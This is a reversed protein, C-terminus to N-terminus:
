QLTKLLAKISAEPLPARAVLWGRGWRTVVQNWGPPLSAELGTPSLPAGPGPDQAGASEPRTRTRGTERGMLMGLYRLELTDGPVLLQRIHLAREGPAWEEWDVSLVRLGPVSLGSTEMGSDGRGGIGASTRQGRLGAPPLGASEYDALRLEEPTEPEIVPITGPEGKTGSGSATPGMTSDQVAPITTWIQGGMWGVGLALVVTAAWALPFGKLPGRHRPPHSDETAFVPSGSPAGAGARERLEELSPLSIEDLDPPLLIERARQRVEKEDQLRERCAPCGSLHERVEEGRDELLSDLAGDLYAHLEGDTVHRM